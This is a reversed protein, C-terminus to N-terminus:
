NEWSDPANVLKIETERIVDDLGKYKISLEQGSTHKVEFIEGRKERKIGRIEFIDKFDGEFYLSCTFQAPQNGYNFINIREHCSGNRVFKNRAIHLTGKPIKQEQGNDSFSFVENTLDISHIENEEKITSSLLLARDDNVRFELGSIFRTGEHYIGPAEDGLQRIDGWRDFIGFTDIHNLVKVQLDAYSSNAAIYFKNELQIISNNAM